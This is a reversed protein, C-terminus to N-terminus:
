YSMFNLVTKKFILTQFLFFAFYYKFTVFEYFKIENFDTRTMEWQAQSTYILTNVVFDRVTTGVNV